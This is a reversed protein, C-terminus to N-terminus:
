KPSTEGLHLNNSQSWVRWNPNTEFEQTQIPKLKKKSQFEFDKNSKFEIVKGIFPVVLRLYLLILNSAYNLKNPKNEERKETQSLFDSITDTEGYYHFETVRPRLCEQRVEYIM